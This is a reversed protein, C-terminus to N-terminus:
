LGKWVWRALAVLLGGVFLVGFILKNRRALWEPLYIDFNARQSTTYHAAVDTLPCRWHNWVLVLIEAGVVVSFALVLDFRDLWAYFPIAIICGAVLAWVITHVIKVARLRAITSM